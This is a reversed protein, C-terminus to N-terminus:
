GAGPKKTVGIASRFTVHQHPHCVTPLAGSSIAKCSEFLRSPHVITSKEFGFPFEPMLEFVSATARASEDRRWSAAMSVDIRDRIRAETRYENTKALM